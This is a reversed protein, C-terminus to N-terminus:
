YCHVTFVFPQSGKRSNVLCNHFGQRCSSSPRQQVAFDLTHVNVSPEFPLQLGSFDEELALAAVSPLLGELNSATIM